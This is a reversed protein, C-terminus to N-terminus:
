HFVCVSETHIIAQEQYIEDLKDPLDNPNIEKIFRFLSKRLKKSCNLTLEIFKQTTQNFFKNQEITERPHLTTM